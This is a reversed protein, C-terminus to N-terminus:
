RLHNGRRRKAVLAAFAGCASLVFVCLWLGPMENDGTEPVDSSTTHEAPAPNVTIAQTATETIGGETYSVTVSTKGATLNDGDTVTYGTVAKHSGDSYGATVVMGTPDFDEGDAYTTKAPASTVSIGTLTAPPADNEEFVAVLSRDATATFTYSAGADAVDAGNETWKVFHYGGAATATVTVSDNEKYTNGGTVSGGEAPSASVSVTYTKAALGGFCYWVDFSGDQNDIINAANQNVTATSASSLAYGETSELKFLLTYFKGNEFVLADADSKSHWVAGSGSLDDATTPAAATEIWFLFESGHPKYGAEYGHSYNTFSAEKGSVPVVINNIVINGIATDQTGEVPGFTYWVQYWTKGDQTTKTLGAEHGNISGSVSDAFSYSEETTVYAVFTAYDGVKFNTGSSSYGTGNTKIDSLTSYAQTHIIWMSSGDDDYPILGSDAPLSWTFDMSQGAAPETLGTITINRSTPSPNEEGCICANSDSYDHAASIAIDCDSCAATHTGDDNNTYAEPNTPFNPTHSHYLHNCYTCSQEHKGSNETWDGLTCSVSQQITEACKSCYIHHGESLGGMFSGYPNTFYQYRPIHAEKPANYGCYYCTQWHGEADHSRIQAWKCDATMETGCVGCNGKHTGDNNPVASDDNPIAHDGYQKYGCDKCTRVHQNGEVEYDGFRHAYLATTGTPAYWKGCGSCERRHEYDNQPAYVWTHEEDAEKYGCHVNDCYYYHVEDDNTYMRLDHASYGSEPVTSYDMIDCDAVICANWHGTDNYSYYFNTSWKHTHSEVADDAFGALPLASVAVLLALLATFVRKNM